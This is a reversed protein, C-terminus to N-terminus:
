RTRAQYLVELAELCLEREQSTLPRLRKVLTASRGQPLEFTTVEQYAAAFVAPPSQFFQTALRTHYGDRPRDGPQLPSFVVYDTDLLGQPDPSRQRDSVLNQARSVELSFARFDQALYYRFAAADFEELAAAVLLTCPRGQCDPDEVIMQLISAIQWEEDVAPNACFAVLIRYADSCALTDLPAGLANAIARSWPQVGWTVMSFNFAAVVVCIVILTTSVLRLFRTRHASRLIYTTKGEAEAKCTVQLRVGEEISDWLRHDASLRLSLPERDGQTALIEGRRRDAKAVQVTRSPAAKIPLVWDRLDVVWAATMAAAVPLVPAFQMWARITYVSLACYIAVFALVLVSWPTRRKVIGVLLGIALFLAFVNSIANPATLAFWWFPPLTDGFGLTLTGQWATVAQAIRLLEQGRSLYWPASLAVAILAAPLLGRLVFPDRLRGLLWAPTGKLSPPRRPETQFFLMYFGFVITPIPLYIVASFHRILAGFGLSAGFLWAIKVSRTRLLVLLLWLSLAVCAVEAYHPMYVRSLNLVPPYAAVIFAALLGAKANKVEKGIGYTSFLLLAQFLLNVSVAADASRGFLWIFPLSLLQYLPPRGQFSLEDLSRWLEAAGQARVRDSFRLTLALYDHSDRRPMPRTDQINWAISSVTVILILGALAVCEKHELLFRLTNELRSANEEGVTDAASNM